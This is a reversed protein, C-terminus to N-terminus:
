KKPSVQPVEDPYRVVFDDTLVDYDGQFLPLRLARLERRICQQAAASPAQEGTFAIGAIHGVNRVVADFPVEFDGSHPPDHTEVCAQLAERRGRVAARVARRDMQGEVAEADPEYDMSDTLVLEPELRTLEGETLQVEEEWVQFGDLVVKVRVPRDLPLGDRPPLTGDSTILKNDIHIEGAPPDVQVSLRGTPAVVEPPGAMWQQLASFNAGVAVLAILGVAGAVAGWPVRKRRAHITIARRGGRDAIVTVLAVSRDRKMGSPDITVTIEQESKTPDLRDPSVSVWPRDSVVRGHMRGDGANRVLLSLSEPKSGLEVHRETTGDVVLRISHRPSRQPASASGMSLTKGGLNGPPAPPADRLLLTTPAEEEGGGRLSLPPSDGAQLQREADGGSGLGPVAAGVEADWRADYRHRLDATALWGRVVRLTGHEPDNEPITAGLQDVVARLDSLPASRESGLFDYLDVFAAAELDVERMGGAADVAEAITRDAQDSPVGAAIAEAYLRDEVDRRLVGRDTKLVTDLQARLTSAAAGSRQASLFANYARGNDILSRRVAATSKIFWIAQQRHKPNAQQGQAWSRKTRVAAEVNAADAGPTLGLYSYLDGHGFRDLDRHLAEFERNPM